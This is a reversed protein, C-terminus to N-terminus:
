LCNQIILDIKKPERFKHNKELGARLQTRWARQREKIGHIQMEIEIARWM